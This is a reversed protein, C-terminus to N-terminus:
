SVSASTSVPCLEVAIRWKGRLSKALASITSQVSDLISLRKDLRPRVEVALGHIRRVRKQEARVARTRRNEARDTM